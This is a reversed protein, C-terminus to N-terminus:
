THVYIEGALWPYLVDMGVMLKSKVMWTDRNEDWFVVNQLGAAHVGGVPSDQGNAYCCLAVPQGRASGSNITFDGNYKSLDNTVNTSPLHNTPILQFGEAVTVTREHISMGYKDAFYDRNMIKSDRTLVALMYPTTFCYRNERPINNEDFTQAMYSLDDLFRGSGTADRAYATPVDAATRLKGYGGNHVGSVAATRASLALLRFCRKDLKESIIRVCERGDKEAINWKSLVTDVWPIRLAKILPDDVSINKKAQTTTGGQIFTGAVHHEADESSGGYMAFDDSSAGEALPKKWLFGGSWFINKDRFVEALSADLETFTLARTDSSIQLGRALNVNM